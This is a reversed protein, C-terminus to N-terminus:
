VLKTCSYRGADYFFSMINLWEEFPKETLRLRKDVQGIMQIM